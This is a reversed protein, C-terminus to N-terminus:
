IRNLWWFGANLWTAYCTWLLYPVLLAAAMPRLQGFARLTLGILVVLPLIVALGLAPSHLGFFAPTWLANALLQWGWLRLAARKAVSMHAPLRWVLWGATGVMVYLTTWVPAFVWNPPTGPPTALTLYWGRVAQATLGAGSAGVLLCLGIFGVLALATSRRLFGDHM